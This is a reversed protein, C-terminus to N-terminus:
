KGKKRVWQYVDGSNRPNTFEGRMNNGPVLRSKM